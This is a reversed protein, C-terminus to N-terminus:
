YFINKEQLLDHVKNIPIILASSSYTRGEGELHATVVGIVEYQKTHKNYVLAPGGSNGPAIPVSIRHFKPMISSYSQYTGTTITIRDGFPYGVVYVTDLYDLGSMDKAMALHSPVTTSDLKLVAIDNNEDMTVVTATGVLTGEADYVEILTNDVIVHHNTVLYKNTIAFASGGVVVDYDRTVRIMYTTAHAEVKKFNTWATIFIEGETPGGLGTCSISAAMFLVLTIVKGM